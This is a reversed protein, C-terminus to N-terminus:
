QAQRVRGQRGPAGVDREALRCLICPADRGGSGAGPQPRQGDILAAVSILSRDRRDLGPRNWVEGILREQTHRELAPAVSRVQEPAFPRGGADSQQTHTATQSM